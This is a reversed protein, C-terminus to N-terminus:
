VEATGGLKACQAWRVRVFMRQSHYRDAAGNPMVPLQAGNKGGEQIWEGWVRGGRKWRGGSEIREVMPTSKETTLKETFNGRNYRRPNGKDLVKQM